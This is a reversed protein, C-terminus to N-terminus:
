ALPPPAALPRAPSADRRDRRLWAILALIGFFTLPPILRPMEGHWAHTAAAGAMVIMLIAASYPAARPILLGLGAVAEVVGVVLHSGPPYGWGEFRQRWSSDAFKGMGILVFMVGCLVQLVWTVVTKGRSM